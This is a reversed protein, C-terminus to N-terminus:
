VSRRNTLDSMAAGVHSEKDKRTRKFADDSKNSVPSMANVFSSPVISEEVDKYYVTIYKYLKSMRVLRIMRCLRAIRAVANARLLNLGVLSLMVAISSYNQGIIWNLELILTCTAICDLILYFSGMHIIEYIFSNVGSSLNAWNPLHFYSDNCCSILVIEFIYMFFTLSTIGVIIGDNSKSVLLVRVSDSFLSWITLACIFGVFYPSEVIKQIPLSMRQFPVEFYSAKGKSDADREDGHEEPIAMDNSQIKMNTDVSITRRGSVDSVGQVSRRRPRAPRMNEPNFAKQINLAGPSVRSDDRSKSSSEHHAPSRQDELSHVPVRIFNNISNRQPTSTM